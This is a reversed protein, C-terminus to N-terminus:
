RLRVLGGEREWDPGIRVIVGIEHARHGSARILDLARNAEGGEVVAAMGIGMNFTAYMEDEPVGGLSAVHQFIPPAEWASRDIEAGLGEPLVRGLNEPIGGQTIHALGHVEVEQMVASVVRSYILTPRLLEEGLSVALGPLRDDLSHGMDEFLVKRVLSYGNSHLGSSEIGVVVDGLRIREGTVLREREAVGVCFGALDYSGPLMHGPHEAIEGGILAAGAERCGGAIGRVIQEIVDEDVKEIVIYDLFFLPEAGMAAVDNVSMAVLDIGITDHVGIQLAIMVKTGVGDTGSVLVPERYARPDFAFVGGFSGIDGGVEPRFTSRVLTRIRDIARSQALRDVGADAYTTPKVSGPRRAGSRKKEDM